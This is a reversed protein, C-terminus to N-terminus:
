SKLQTNKHNKLNFEAENAFLLVSTVTEVDEWGSGKADINLETIVKHRQPIIPSTHMKPSSKLNASAIFRNM